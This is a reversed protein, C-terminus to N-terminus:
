QKGNKKSKQLIHILKNACNFSFAINHNKHTLGQITLKLM